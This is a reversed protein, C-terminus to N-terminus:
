VDKIFEITKAKQEMKSCKTEMGTGLARRLARTAKQPERQPATTM